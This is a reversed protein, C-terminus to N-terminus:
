VRRCPGAFPPCADVQRMVQRDRAVRRDHHSMMARHERWSSPGELERSRRKSKIEQKQMFHAIEQQLSPVAFPDNRSVSAMQQTNIQMNLGHQVEDQAVQAARFDGEPYSTGSSPQSNQWRILSCFLDM